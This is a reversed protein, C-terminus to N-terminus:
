GDGPRGCRGPTPRDVEARCARRDTLEDPGAANRRHLVARVTIDSLGVVAAVQAPTRPEDTRALLWVAHWRM